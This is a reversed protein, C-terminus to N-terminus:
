ILTQWRQIWHTMMLECYIGPIHNKCENIVPFVRWRSWPQINDYRKRLYILCQRHTVSVSTLYGLLHCTTKIINVSWDIEPTAWNIHCFYNNLQLFNNWVAYSKKNVREMYFRVFLCVSKFLKLHLFKLSNTPLPM